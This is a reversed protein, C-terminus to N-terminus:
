IKKTKTLKRPRLSQQTINFNGSLQSINEESSYVNANQQKSWMRSSINLSDSTNLSSNLIPKTRTSKILKRPRLSLQTINFSDSLQSINEKTSQGNANQQKSWNKSTINLIDSTNLSSNLIPKTRTSKRNGKAILNGQKTISNKSYSKSHKTNNTVNDCGSCNRNFNKSRRSQKRTLESNEKTGGTQKKNFANGKVSRSQGLTEKKKKTTISEVKNQKTNKNEKGKQPIESSAKKINERMKEKDNSVKIEMNLTKKKANRKNIYDHVTSVKGINKTVQHKTSNVTSSIADKFQGKIESNFLKSAPVTEYEKESEIDTDWFSKVYKSRQFMNTTAHKSLIVSCDRLISSGNHGKQQSSKQINHKDSNINLTEDTLTDRVDSNYKDDCASNIKIIKSSTSNIQEAPIIKEILGLVNEEEDSVNRNLCSQTKVLKRAKNKDKKDVKAQLSAGAADSPEKISLLDVKQTFLKRKSFSSRMSVENIKLDEMQKFSNKKVKQNSGSLPQMAAKSIVFEKINVHKGAAKTMSMSPKKFVDKTLHEIQTQPSSLNIKKENNYCQDNLSRKRNDHASFIGETESSCCNYEEREEHREILNNSKATTTTETFRQSQLPYEETIDKLIREENCVLTSDPKMVEGLNKHSNLLMNKQLPMRHDTPLHINNKTTMVLTKDVLSIQAGRFVTANKNSQNEEDENSSIPDDSTEGRSAIKRQIYKNKNNNINQMFKNRNKEYRKRLQHKLKRCVVDKIM